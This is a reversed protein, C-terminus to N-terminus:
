FRTFNSADIEIRLSPAFVIVTGGVDNRDFHPTASNVIGAFVAVIFEGPM